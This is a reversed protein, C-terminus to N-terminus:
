RKQRPGFAGSWVPHQTFVMAAISIGGCVHQPYALPFVNGICIACTNGWLQKTLKKHLKSLLIM